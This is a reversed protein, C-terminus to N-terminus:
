ISCKVYLRTANIACIAQLWLARHQIFVLHGGEGLPEGDDHKANIQEKGVNQQEVQENSDELSNEGTVARRGWNLGQGLKLGNPKETNDWVTECELLNLVVSVFDPFKLAVLQDPLVM